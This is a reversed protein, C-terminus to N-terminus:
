HKRAPTTRLSAAGRKLVLALLNPFHRSIAVIAKGHGTIIAERRRCAIANVMQRAAVDTRMMLWAPVPDKAGAKPLGKNDLTRIESDVYGPHITTVSVGLPAMEAWFAEGLSKVAAKSMQYPSGGAGSAFAAVSGLLAFSGKRAKVDEVTAQITRILGFVNTEFQRRYDDLKLRDVRGVVGFGANAVVVDIGGFEARIRAAAEELDGDVTVDCRVALAKAGLGRLEQCLAVLRDERRAGVAIAAGRKAFERAMAEGIGSSAGTIFVVKGDFRKM